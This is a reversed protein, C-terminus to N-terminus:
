LKMFINYYVSPQVINFPASNPTNDATLSGTAFITTVGSGRTSAGDNGTAIFQGGSGTPPGHAHAGVEGPLQIHQAEGFVGGLAVNANFPPTGATGGTIATSTLADAYTAALKFSTANIPIAYYIQNATFASPITGTLYLPSGVYLYSGFPTGVTFVGTGTNFNSVIGTTIPLGLLSRGLSLTLQLQKNATWDAIASAGRTSVAGASTYIPAFTNNVNNWILSFLPWTDINARALPINTPPTISGSNSIVGDNMQVWGFPQFSNLSTRIDGTRFDNIIPDIQDYTDYQNTPVTNSLYLQPKAFDIVFDQSTPFSFLVYLADDGGKGLVLNDADPLNFPISTYKNWSTNLTFSQKFIFSSASSGTGTFQLIQLEIFNNASGSVSKAHFTVTATENELAEIHLQLPFLVGKLTDSGFASCNWELFYEPTIDFTLREGTSHFTKFTLTETAGTADKIMVIDPISFGDHAGPALTQYYYTKAAILTTNDPTALNMSGFNRWFENNILYNELTPVSTSPPPTSPVFPFNARTFQLEANSNEVRVFYPDSQDKDDESFPYFFPIVDNGNADAFTGVGTLTAPNPGACFQYPAFNTCQYYWNKLIQRQKDRFFTVVGAALPFGTDKDVLYDQLIPASILLNEDINAM